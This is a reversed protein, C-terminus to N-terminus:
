YNFLLILSKIQYHIYYDCTYFCCTCTIEQMGDLGSDNTENACDDLDISLGQCICKCAYYVVRPVNNYIWATLEIVYFAVKWLPFIYNQKPFVYLIISHIKLKMKSVFKRAATSHLWFFIGIKINQKFYFFKFLDFFGYRFKCILIM